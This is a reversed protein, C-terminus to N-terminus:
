KNTPLVILNKIFFKREKTKCTCFNTNFVIFTQQLAFKWNIAPFVVSNLYAPPLKTRRSNNDSLENVEKIKSHTHCKSM